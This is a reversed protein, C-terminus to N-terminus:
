CCYSHSPLFVEANPYGKEEEELDDVMGDAADILSRKVTLSHDKDRVKDCLEKAAEIMNERKAIAAECDFQLTHAWNRMVIPDESPREEDAMPAEPPRPM